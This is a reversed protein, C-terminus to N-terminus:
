PWHRTCFMNTMILQDTARTRETPVIRRLFVVGIIAFPSSEVGWWTESMLTFDGAKSALCLTVPRCPRRKVVGCCVGLGHTGDLGEALVRFVEVLQVLLGDGQLVLQVYEPCLAVLLHNM